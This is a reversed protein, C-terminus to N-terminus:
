YPRMLHSRSTISLLVQQRSSARYATAHGRCTTALAQSAHRVVGKPSGTSGSTYIVYAPNQPHLSNAPATAPQPRHRGTPMSACSRARHQPCRTSCRRSPSWCRRAPMRWCSPSASQPYSPDLPLYAGGAKLIGLLGVLMTSRASSACGSWSRPASASSACIIRWSTPAPMSSACLHPAAGRVGGRGCRPHPRGPGRVAGAAHRVPDARATDNWERLITHREAPPWFTSGASRGIPIRLRRRSCGFWAAPWRRWAPAISCTPPTNSCAMIGPPTGDAARQEALDLSLDFKATATDVPEFPSADPGAPRLQGDANNQLALMVQFLPHRALSRAPNLVEVLREFPLDQHSYAALNTARVRAILERFSPNGSTDTRLVLTNVFFGVLDDLASDTRGAIPSGIPIDTGAGLRTLLAALGAQLVM